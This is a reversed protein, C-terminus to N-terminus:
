SAPGRHSSSMQLTLRVTLGASSALLELDVVDNRDAHVRAPLQVLGIEDGQAGVGAVKDM